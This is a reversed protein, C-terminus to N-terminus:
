EPETPWTVETPFGAQKTIDRLQQRYSYWEADRYAENGPLYRWDSMQILHDREARIHVGADALHDKEAFTFKIVKDEGIETTNPCAYNAYKGFTKEIEELTLERVTKPDSLLREADVDNDVNLVFNDYIFLRLTM